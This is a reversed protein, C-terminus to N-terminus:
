RRWLSGELSQLLEEDEEPIHVICYSEGESRALLYDQAKVGGFKRVLRRAKEKEEKDLLEGEILTQLAALLQGVQKKSFSHAIM